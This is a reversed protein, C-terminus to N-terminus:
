NVRRVRWVLAYLPYACALLAITYLSTKSDEVVLGVLLSGMAFLVISPLVPYGRAKYPRSLHPERVRLRFLSLYVSTDIAIGLFAAIGFLTEFSSASVLIVGAGSTLLMAIGPAGSRNLRSAGTMMFGSRGLGVLIRPAGTVAIHLIGLLSVISFITVFARAARGFVLQAADAIALKSSALTAMPLTSLLAINTLVYLMVVALLGGFMSRPINNSPDRQDESFYVVGNWGAYTESISRIALLMAGAVGFLSVHTSPLDVIGEARVSQGWVLCSVALIVLGLAKAASLLEQFVAATRLGFWNLVTLAVLLGVATAKEYGGLAPVFGACYEGLAVSIYAIACVQTLWDAWGAVFGAFEGFSRRIYIFPGGATPM